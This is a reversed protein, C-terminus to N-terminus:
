TAIPVPERAPRVLCAGSLLVAPTIALLVWSPVAGAILLFLYGVEPRVSQRVRVSLTGAILLAAGLLDFIIIATLVPNPWNDPLVFRLAVWIPAIAVLTASAIGVIHAVRVTREPARLRGTLSAVFVVVGLLLCGYFVLIM